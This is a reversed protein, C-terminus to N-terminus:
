ADVVKLGAAEAAKKARLVRNQEREAKKKAAEVRKAQTKAKHEPSRQFEIYTAVTCQATKADLEKGTHKAFWAVFDLINEGPDKALLKEFNRSTEAGPDTLDATYAQTERVKPIEVQVQPQPRRRRTTTPQTTKSTSKRNTAM